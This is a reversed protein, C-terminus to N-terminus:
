LAKRHTIGRELRQNSAALDQTRQRLARRARLLQASAELAVGRTREIPAVAKAFFSDTLKLIRGRSNSLGLAALAQDHIRALGLAGLGIAAAQRGLGEALQSSARRGPMVHKRLAAKYWQLFQLRTM